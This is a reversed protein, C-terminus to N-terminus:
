TGQNARDVNSKEAATLAPKRDRYPFTVSLLTMGLLLRGPACDFPDFFQSRPTEARKLGKMNM